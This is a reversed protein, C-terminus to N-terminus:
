DGVSTRRKIRNLLAMYANYAEFGSAVEISREDVILNPRHLNCFPTGPVHIGVRFYCAPVKQGFFAFDEATM